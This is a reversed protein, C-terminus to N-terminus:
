STLLSCPLLCPVLTLSTLLSPLAPIPSTGERLSAAWGLRHATTDGPLWDWSAGGLRQPTEAWGM